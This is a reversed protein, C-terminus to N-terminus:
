AELWRGLTQRRELDQLEAQEEGTLGVSGDENVKIEPAILYHRLEKLRQSLRTKADDATEDALMLDAFHNEPADPAPLLPAEPEPAPLQASPNFKPWGRYIDIMSADQLATEDLVRKLRRAHEIVEDVYADMQRKAHGGKSILNLQKYIPFHEFIAQSAQNDVVSALRMRLVCVDAAVMEPAEEM